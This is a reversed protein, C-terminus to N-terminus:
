PIENVFKISVRAVFRTGVRKYELVREIIAILGQGGDLATSIQGEEDIMGVLTEATLSNFESDNMKRYYTVFVGDSAYDLRKLCECRKVFVNIYSEDRRRHEAFIYGVVNAGVAPANLYDQATDGSIFGGGRAYRSSAAIIVLLAFIVLFSIRSLLIKKSKSKRLM